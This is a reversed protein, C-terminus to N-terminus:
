STSGRPKASPKAPLPAASATAAATSVSMDVIQPDDEDDHLVIKANVSREVSKDPRLLMFTDQGTEVEFPDGVTGAPDIFNDNVYVDRGTQAGIVKVWSLAM